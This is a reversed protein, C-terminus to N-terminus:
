HHIVRPLLEAALEGAAAIAMLCILTITTQLLPTHTILSATSPGYESGFTQPDRLFTWVGAYQPDDPPIEFQWPIYGFSPKM